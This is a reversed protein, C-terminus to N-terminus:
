LMEESVLGEPYLSPILPWQDAKVYHDAVTSRAYPCGAKRAVHCVCKCVSM